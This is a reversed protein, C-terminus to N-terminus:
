RGEVSTGVEMRVARVDLDVAMHDFDHQGGHMLVGDIADSAEGATRLEQLVGVVLDESEVRSGRLSDPRHHVGKM